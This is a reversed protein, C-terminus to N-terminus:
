DQAICYGPQDDFCVKEMMTQLEQSIDPLVRLLLELSSRLTFNMSVVNTGLADFERWPEHKDKADSEVVLRDSFVRYCEHLWVEGTPTIRDHCPRTNFLSVSFCISFTEIRVVGPLQSLRSSDSEQRIEFQRPLILWIWDMDWPRTQLNGWRLAGRACFAHPDRLTASCPATPAWCGKSFTPFTRSGHSNQTM